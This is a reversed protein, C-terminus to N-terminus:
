LDESESFRYFAINLGFIFYVLTTIEHDWFNLETLGSILFACFTAFAGLAYSSVFPVSRVKKIIKLDIMIIKYFLYCLAILGVLGLTVLFHVFNNHMHGQIEKDYERKYQRYYEALDIDGVGFLPHDKFIEIGARWLAIRNYNSPQYPDFISLLRSRKVHSFYYKGSDYKFAYPHFDLKFLNTLKNSGSEMVELAAVDGNRKVILFGSDTESIKYVNNFARFEEEISLGSSDINFLVMGDSYAALIKEDQYYLQELNPKKNKILLRDPLNEKLEYISFGSDASAFIIFPSDVFIRNNKAFESYRVNSKDKTPNTFITLGSDSDLVYIYGNAVSLSVTYGPSILENVEEFELDNKKLIVFRTDELYALYFEDKLYNFFKVPDPLEINKILVSDEYVALGKEFDSVVKYKGLSTIDYARGGTEFSYVLKVNANKLQYVKIESVNEQVFLLAIMVVAGATLIKWQKKLILIIVIGFAAGTWGTRKYTSILALSSLLFGILLFIKNRFSTKENVLFAFLFIVTFSIIESATIPYQFLSPGSQTIGYLDNIVYYYSFYLYILVTVLTAAIYLKFYFKSRKIDAAAILITYTVPILLFRKLLNNVALSSYDSFVASLIEAVIYWLFAFELGTKTFQNERTIGIRILILLLAGFYGLQNIFISNSLSLLFIIVFVVIAWDLIKASISKNGAM